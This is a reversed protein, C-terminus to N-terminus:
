ACFMVARQNTQNCLTTKNDPEVLSVFWVLWDLWSSNVPSEENMIFRRAVLALLPVGQRAFGTGAQRAKGPLRV